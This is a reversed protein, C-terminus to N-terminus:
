FGYPLTRGDEFVKARKALLSNSFSILTYNSALNEYVWKKSRRIKRHQLIKSFSITEMLFCKFEHEYASFTMVNSVAASSLNIGKLKLIVKPQHSVKHRLLFAYNKCGLTIFATVNFDELEDKVDGMCQSLAFPLETGKRLRIVFSDTNVMYAREQFQMLIKYLMLRGYSTVQVAAILYANRNVNQKQPKTQIHCFRNTAHVIDVIHGLRYEKLLSDYDGVFKTMERGSQSGLKGFLCNMAWKAHNRLYSNPSMDEPKIQFSDKLQLKKNIYSTYSEVSSFSSPVPSCMVKTRAFFQIFHSFLREQKPYAYVEYFKLIRYNLKLAMNLEMHTFNGLIARDSDVHHCNRGQNGKQACAQCLTYVCLKKEPDSYPLLPIHLNRPPLVSCLAVGFFPAKDCYLEGDQETMISCLEKGMIIKHKGSCFPEQWLVFPYCSSIDFYRLEEGPFM